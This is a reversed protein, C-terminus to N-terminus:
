HKAPGLKEAWVLWDKQDRQFTPQALENAIILFPKGQELYATKQLSGDSSILFFYIESTTQHELIVAPHQADKAQTLFLGRGVRRGGITAPELTFVKPEAKEGTCVSFLNCVEEPLKPANYTRWQIDNKHEVVAKFLNGPKAQGFLQLSFALMLFCPVLAFSWRFRAHNM